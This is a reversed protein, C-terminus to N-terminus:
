SICVMEDVFHANEVIICATIDEFFKSLMLIIYKAVM